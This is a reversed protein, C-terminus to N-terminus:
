RLVYIREIDVVAIFVLIDIRSDVYIRFVHKTLLQTYDRNRWSSRTKMSIKVMM